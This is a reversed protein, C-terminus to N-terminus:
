SRHCPYCGKKQANSKAPEVSAQSMLPLRLSLYLIKRLYQGAASLSVALLATPRPTSTLNVTPFRFIDCLAAHNFVEETHSCIQLQVALAAQLHSVPHKRNQFGSRPLSPPSGERYSEGRPPFVFPEAGPERSGAGSGRWGEAAPPSGPGEPRAGAREARPCRPPASGRRRQPRRAPGHGRVAPPPARSGGVPAPSPLPPGPLPFPLSPPGPRSGAAQLVKALPRRHAPAQRSPPARRSAPHQIAPATVPWARRARRSPLLRRRLGLQERGGRRGRQASGPEAGPPHSGRPAPSPWPQLRLRGPSEPCSGGARAPLLARCPASRGPPAGHRAGPFASGSARQTLGPM